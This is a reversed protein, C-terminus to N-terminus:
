QRELKFPGKFQVEATANQSSDQLDGEVNGSGQYASGDVYTVVVPFYADSDAREQLFELDGQQNDIELALGDIMWNKRTKITRSSGDGNPQAENTFGGLDRSSDADGAVKFLRNDFSVSEISGGTAM